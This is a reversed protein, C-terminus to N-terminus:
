TEFLCCTGLLYFSDKFNWYLYMCHPCIQFALILHRQHPQLVIEYLIVVSVFFSLQSVQCYEEITIIRKTSRHYNQIFNVELTLMEVDTDVASKHAESIDGNLHTKRMEAYHLPSKTWVLEVIVISKLSTMNFTPWYIDVLKKTLVKSNCWRCFKIEKPISLSFLVNRWDLMIVRREVCHRKKTVKILAFYAGNYKVM